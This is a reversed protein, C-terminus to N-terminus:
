FITLKIITVNHTIIHSNVIFSKDHVAPNTIKTIKYSVTNNMFPIISIFAAYVANYITYTFKNNIM